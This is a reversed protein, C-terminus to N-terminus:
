KDHAMKMKLTKLLKFTESNRSLHNFDDRSIFIDDRKAKFFYIFLYVVYKM